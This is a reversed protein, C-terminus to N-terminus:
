RNRSRKQAARRQRRNRLKRSAVADGLGGKTAILQPRDPKAEVQAEDEDENEDEVDNAVENEPTPPTPEPRPEPERPMEVPAPTPVPVLVPGPAPELGATERAFTEPLKAQAPM